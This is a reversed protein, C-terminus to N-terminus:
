QLDAEESNTALSNVGVMLEEEIVNFLKCFEPHTFDLDNAIEDSNEGSMILKKVLNAAEEGQEQLIKAILAELEESTLNSIISQYNRAKAAFSQADIPNASQDEVIEKSENIEETKELNVIETTQDSNESIPLNEKASENAIESQTDVQEEHNPSIVDFTTIVSESNNNLSNDTITDTDSM